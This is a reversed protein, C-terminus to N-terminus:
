TKTFGEEKIFVTDLDVPGKNDGKAHWMWDLM